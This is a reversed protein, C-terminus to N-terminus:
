RTLLASLGTGTTTCRACAATFRRWHRWLEEHTDFRFYGANKRVADFNKQEAFCNGNKRYPRSRAPEISRKLCWDPLPKNIFGTGNDFHAAKLPFPLGAGTDAFAEQVRRNAANLLPREGARGSSVDTGTLTKCYQGSAPGGCHAVTDFAFRGSKVTKRDCRTRVPVRSRLSSRAARATSIGRIEDAKRAKKLLRDAAAPSVKLLLARIEGDIGYDPKTSEALFDIM